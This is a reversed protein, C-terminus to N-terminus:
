RHSIRTIQGCHQCKTREREALRQMEDQYREHLAHWRHEKHMLQLLVWMPNLKDGCTACTVDAAREDVLFGHQHFCKAGVVPALTRDNGLDRRRSVPLKLVDASSQEDIM